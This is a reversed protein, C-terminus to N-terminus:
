YKVVADLDYLKTTVSFRGYIMKYGEFDDSLIVKLVTYYNVLIFIFQRLTLKKMPFTRFFLSLIFM